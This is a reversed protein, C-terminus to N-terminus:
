ALLRVAGYGLAVLWAIQAFAMVCLFAKHTGGFGVARTAEVEAERHEQPADGEPRADDVQNNKQDALGVAFQDDAVATTTM